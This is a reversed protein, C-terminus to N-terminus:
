PVHNSRVLLHQRLDLEFGDVKQPPLRWSEHSRSVTFYEGVISDPKIHLVMYGHRDDCYNELIVGTDQIECPVELPSKDLQRQMSHLNWYGGAGAVIYPVQRGNFERTFRQYNHVHGSFVIDAIIGSQNFANDLTEAIFKSGSHHQDASYAPHHVSVILAKDSPATRLENIFWAIQTDDFQGGEPVNSYLGVFTAFPTDLTWYANPQIMAPRLVGGADTSITFDPSCFNRVFANLSPTTDNHPVDGDHNGPIAFIPAPYHQYVEYFQPLYEQSQGYNCVVDGLHYFFSPKISDTDFDREMAIEVIQQSAPYKIGGTDGTVHILMENVSLISSIKDQSLVDRLMLHYPPHGTPPPPEHFKQNVNFTQRLNSRIGTPRPKYLTTGKTNIQTM